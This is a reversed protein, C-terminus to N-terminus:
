WISFYLKNTEHLNQTSLPQIIVTFIPPVVHSSEDRNIANVILPSSLKKIKNLIV